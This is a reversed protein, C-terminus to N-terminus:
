TPCLRKLKKKLRLLKQKLVTIDPSGSAAPSEATLAAGGIAEGPSADTHGVTLIKNLLREMGAAIRLVEERHEPGLTKGDKALRIALCRKAAKIYHAKSM